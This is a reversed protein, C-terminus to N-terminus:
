IGLGGEFRWFDEPWASVLRMGYNRKAAKVLRALRRVPAAEWKGEPHLLLRYCDPQDPKAPEETM